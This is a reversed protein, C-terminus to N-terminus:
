TSILASLTHIGPLAGVMGPIFINGATLAFFLAALAIIGPLMLEGWPSDQGNSLGSGTGPVIAVARGVPRVWM